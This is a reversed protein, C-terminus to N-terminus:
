YTTVNVNVTIDPKIALASLAASCAFGLPIVATNFVEIHIKPPNNATIAIM